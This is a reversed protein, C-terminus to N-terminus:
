WRGIQRTGLSRKPPGVLSLAMPLNLMVEILSSPALQKLDRTGGVSLYHELHQGRKLEFTAQHTEMM